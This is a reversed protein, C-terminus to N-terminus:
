GGAVSETTYNAFNWLIAEGEEDTASLFATFTSAEDFAIEMTERPGPLLEFRVMVTAEDSISGDDAPLGTLAGIRRFVPVPLNAVDLYAHQLVEDPDKVFQLTFDNFVVVEGGVLFGIDRGDFQYTERIVGTDLNRVIEPESLLRYETQASQTTQATQDTMAIENTAM